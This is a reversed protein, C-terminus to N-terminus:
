VFDQLVSNAVFAYEQSLCLHENQIFLIGKNEYKRLVETYVDRLDVGFDRRFSALDVGETLRLGLIVREAMRVERSLFEREEEDYPNRSRALRNNYEEINEINKWRVGRLCSVAGPGLGLYDKGQWYSLNHRCEWGPLAFNSTEYHCYGSNKLLKRAWDYMGAQTDDDPLWIDGGQASALRRALATGEELMLGYLSLHQPQFELAQEVTDQWDRFSQIPLGFMLDLNFNDFGATQLLRISEKAEDATHIRGIEHLCRDQFSQVGLSFRNIGYKRLIELKEKSLTGPNGEITAEADAALFFGQRLMALLQRLSERELVTPTGGGIFLSSVGSPADKQHLQIELGLGALYVGTLARAEESAKKGGTKNSKALPFSFFACYDCKRLCFPVHVYLSPM